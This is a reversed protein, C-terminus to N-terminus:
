SGGGVTVTGTGHAMQAESVPLSTRPHVAFKPRRWSIYAPLVLVGAIMNTAMLFMLLMSMESHFLLPSFSWLAIAGIMVIFTDWVAVGTTRLAFIIAEDVSKGLAVEDVIRSVTYIGYDIGLGIGLSIVPITDITLGIGRAAMYIFAAFNGLICALFFLVAAVLSEFVIASFLFIIALVCTLNLLDLKYLVDNAAKYLGAEGAMYELKDKSLAPDTAFRTQYFQGLLDTVRNLTAYTHDRLFIRFVTNNAREAGTVWQDLEGPATSQFFLYWMGGGNFNSEPLTFFKPFGYHFRMEIPAVANSAFAVTQRVDPDNAQLFYAFDDMMRLARPTLVNGDKPFDPTSMVVWGEDLPYYKAIEQIDRNVKSDAPYLPTGATSYGVRARALTTLGALMVVASIIFLGARAPGPTVPLDSLWIGLRRWWATVDGTAATPQSERRHAPLYSVLIPQFVFVMLLSSGLWVAGTYALHQLIPIGGFSIFIIGAIDAAISLLGPPLMTETTALVAASRDGNFRDLEDYYRCQWQIGHSLDRATLLLPIVLMVPDFYYGMFGTFGLGWTASLIGTIAPVWWSARRHLSFYLVLGIVLVSLLLLVAILRLYHYGYGRVIPEGAVFITENDSQYKKVMGQVLQFLSSYDLVDENFSATFIAGKNDPTVFGRVEGRHLKVATKVQQARADDKIPEPAIFAHREIFAASGTPYAVRVSAISYIENHNIGPLTDLEKQIDQIKNLTSVTFIDGNKVRLLLILTQAGGYRKYEDYLQVSPHNVPFFDEFKTEVAVKSVGYAFVGTVILLLAGIMARYKLVTTGIARWPQFTIKM